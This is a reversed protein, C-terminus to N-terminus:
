KFYKAIKKYIWGIAYYLVFLAIVLIPLVLSQLKFYELANGILFGSYYGALVLIVSVIIDFITTIYMFKKFNARVFGALLMGPMPLPPVIKVFILTKGLHEKLHNEIIEIRKKSLGFYGAIREITPGRGYRGILYFIKDPISNGLVSLILIWYVNFIGLSAAFAAVYSIIPGEVIMLLLIIWYGHVQLFELLIPLNNVDIM